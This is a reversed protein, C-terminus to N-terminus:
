MHMYISKREKGNLKTSQSRDLGSEPLLQDLGEGVEDVARRGHRQEVLTDGRHYYTDWVVGCGHLQADGLQPEEYLVSVLVQLVESQQCHGLYEFVLWLNDLLVLLNKAFFLFPGVFKEYTM